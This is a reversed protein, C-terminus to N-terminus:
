PKKADVTPTVPRLSNICRPKGHELYRNLATSIRANLGCVPCKKRPGLRHTTM